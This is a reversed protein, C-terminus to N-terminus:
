DPLRAARISTVRVKKGALLAEAEVTLTADRESGARVYRKGLRGSETRYDAIFLTEDQVTEPTVDKAEDEPPATGDTLTEIALGSRAAFSRLAGEFTMCYDGLFTSGDETKLVWTAYPHAAQGNTLALVLMRRGANRAVVVTSGNPLRAGPTTFDM